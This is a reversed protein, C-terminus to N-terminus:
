RSAPRLRRTVIDALAEIFTPDDDLSRAREIRMGLSDAVARAEIDIDYLVELHGAVFGVPSIVLENVGDAALRRIEELM